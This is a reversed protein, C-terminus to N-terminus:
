SKGIGWFVTGPARFVGTVNRRWASPQWYFGLPVYPMTQMARANVAAAIRLSEAPNAAGLWQDRLTEIEADNPWGFWAQPGNSRLFLHVPPMDLADGTATTHFISWGGREVPERSTRRQVLTGWDASVLEVNMGIRRLLDATVLSLANIQPYDGPAVLVVRENNYGAERLAARAREVSRVRLVDSGNDNALPTGCAFVGLCESWGAPDEGAVARMYDRQDVAMAVARRIAANNFPPHLHNFRLCGYTGHLLRQEIVLNRNRRMVPLLDHLPYEWYDQEGTQMANAATSSDPIVTWEVREIRAM